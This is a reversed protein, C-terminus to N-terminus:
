HGYNFTLMQSNNTTNYASGAAVPVINPQRQHNAREDNGPHRSRQGVGALSQYEHHRQFSGALDQYPGSEKAPYSYDHDGDEEQPRGQSQSSNMMFTNSPAKRFAPASPIEYDGDNQPPGPNECYDNGADKLGDSPIRVVTAMHVPKDNIVDYIPDDFAPNHITILHSNRRPMPMQSRKTRCWVGVGIIIVICAAVGAGIGIFATSSLGSAAEPMTQACLNGQKETDLPCDVTVETSSFSESDATYTVDNVRVVVDGSSVRGRVGDIVRQLREEAHQVSSLDGAAMNIKMKLLVDIGGVERAMRGRQANGAPNSIVINEVTDKFPKSKKLPSAVAERHEQNSLNDSTLHIVSESIERSILWSMIVDKLDRRRRSNNQRCSVRINPFNGDSSSECLPVSNQSASWCVGTQGFHDVMNSTVAHLFGDDSRCPALSISFSASSSISLPLRGRNCVYVGSEWRGDPQCRIRRSSPSLGSDNCVVPCTKVGASVSCAGFFGNTVTPLDDELCTSSTSKLIVWFSCTATNGAIDRATYMVVHEQDAFYFRSGPDKSATITIERGSNDMATPADWTVTVGDTATVMTINDPCDHITPPHSDSITVDFSCTTTRGWKDVARFEWHQTGPDYTVYGPLNVSGEVQLPTGEADTATLTLNIFIRGDISDAPLDFNLSQGHPCTNGFAPPRTTTATSPQLTMTSTSTTPQRTTSTATSPQRTTSTTTSPQRTTSTTTSPQRTTSTTTSPQRTTSTTTSPQRTRSTTTTPQRTTSTTTSPLRTTSATTSTQRTTSTTTSPQRTTSTTTSPQRTTSVTTSPLRTTSTTASPQQTTSATTSPQRTTSATTSPQQTTSVTTSPLRTTSTTTSPQRTTSTTTSPQRTTSATTSPQRTTSATTSPLRTTSTTTSPQQTTSATTSPQRTTSATTSPQQTTSVTTSPLRTTSTTTSPQRTTSATTSPQRTTSATTSPQRTTSATTSPLRTTSTTTSPQRTTSATFSPQRTTSRLPTTSAITSPNQTSTTTSEKRTTTVVPAQPTATVPVTVPVHPGCSYGDLQLYRGEGCACAKGGSVPLCLDSCGGNDEDCPGPHSLQENSDYMRINHPRTGLGSVTRHVVFQGDHQRLGIILRQNDSDTMLVYDKYIAIGSLDANGIPYSVVNAGDVDCSQVTGHFGDLWYVRDELFDIALGKPQNVNFGSVLTRTDTGALTARAVRPTTGTETWFLLGESPHVAVGLPQDLGSVIVKRFSGDLRSVQINGQSRETWYVNSAMWDVAIGEINRGRSYILLPANNPNILSRRYIQQTGDGVETTYFLMKGAYNRDMALIRMGSVLTGLSVSVDDPVDPLDHRLWYAGADSSFLLAVSPLGDDEICTHNDDGLSYGLLCLCRHGAPDGVCTHQCGGNNVQCDTQQWPQRSEHYFGVGHPEAPLQAEIVDEGEVIVHLENGSQDTALIGVGDFAIDFFSTGPSYRYVSQTGSELDLSGIIDVGSDAWFLRNRVYDIVMGHPRQINTSVLVTRDQGSLTAREIKPERGWDSWFMQGRSPHVAIGQPRDLGTQVVVHRHTSNTNVLGIWNYYADTYYLNQNLWDVALGQIASSTGRLITTASADNLFDVKHIAKLGANAWFMQQNRVDFDLATLASPPNVSFLHKTTLTSGIGDRITTSNGPLMEVININTVQDRSIWVVSPEALVLQQCTVDDDQLRWGNQCACTRGGPRALCLQQCGGNQNSCANSVPQYQGSKM